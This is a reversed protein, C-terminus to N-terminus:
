MTDRRALHCSERTAAPAYLPLCRTYDTGATASVEGFTISYGAATAGATNDLGVGTLTGPTAGLRYLSINDCYSRVMEM